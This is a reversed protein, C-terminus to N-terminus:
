FNLEETVAKIAALADRAPIERREGNLDREIVLYKKGEKVIVFPPTQLEENTSVDVFVKDEHKINFNDM